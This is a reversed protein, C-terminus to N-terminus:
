HGKIKKAFQRIIAKDQKEIPNRKKSKSIQPHNKWGLKFSPWSSDESRRSVPRQIALIFAWGSLNRIIEKNHRKKRVKGGNGRTCTKRKAPSNLWIVAESRWREMCSSSIHSGSAKDCWEGVQFEKSTGLQM